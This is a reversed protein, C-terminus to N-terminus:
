LHLISMYGPIDVDYQTEQSLFDRFTELTDAEGHVLQIKCSKPFQSQKLFRLLEQYDAHGSLGGLERVEAKMPVWEGHVKISDMGQLMKAGRTGGAQHGSFLVTCRHDALWHKFHHLIRGGTAMGSGAIIIHPGQQEAISQSEKVSHTYQVFQSARSCDSSSLKHHQHFQHYIGSVDIAMPSDLYVPVRPIRGEEMLSVLMHQLVQARGVAFSPILLVGGRQMTSKVVEELVEFPDNKDHLRDGYTSELLLTDLEPLPEPPYMMIDDFRGVDGSFGIKKGGHEAVISAAGLIHGVPSLTFHIDGVQFQEKFDVPELLKLAQKATAADYLPEPNEHKSLRHKKYFKADEEQIKGSDPWLVGCLAATAPHTFVRGRFGHKYLVPIFGSHDLHAHTLVIADVNEIGLPLPQWNRKRLWKYGQFMGCDVLVRTSETELLYKSGTVTEAGGLFVIRM